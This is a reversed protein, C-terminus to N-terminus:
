AEYSVEGRFTFATLRNPQVGFTQLKLLNFLLPLYQSPASPKIVFLPAMSKSDCINIENICSYSISTTLPKTIMDDEVPCPVPCSPPRPPITTCNAMTSKLNTDKKATSLRISPFLYADAYHRKDMSSSYAKVGIIRIFQTSKTVKTIM